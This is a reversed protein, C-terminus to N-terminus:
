GYSNTYRFVDGGAIDAKVWATAGLVRLIGIFPADAVHVLLEPVGDLAAMDAPSKWASGRLIGTSEEVLVLALPPVNRVLLYAFGPPSAWASANIIPSNYSVTYSQSVNVLGVGTQPYRWSASEPSYVVLYAETVHQDVTIELPMGAEAPGALEFNGHTDAVIAYSGAPLGEVSVAGIGGLGSRARYLGFDPADTTTTYGTGDPLPMLRKLDENASRQIFENIYSEADDPNGTKSAYAGANRLISRVTQMNALDSDLGIRSGHWAASAIVFGTSILILTLALATATLAFGRDKKNHPKDLGYCFEEMM